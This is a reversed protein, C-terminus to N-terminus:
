KENSRKCLSVISWVVEKIGTHSRKTIKLEREVRKYVFYKKGKKRWQLIYVYVVEKVGQYTVSSNIFLNPIKQIKYSYFLTLVYNM